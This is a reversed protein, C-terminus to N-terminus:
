RRALADIDRDSARLMKALTKPPRGVTLVVDENGDDGVTYDIGIVRVTTNVALRGENVYLPVADGMNPFGLAYAGPRLGLTYTPTLLGYYAVDGAAKDNLTSQITVDSANASNQWLGVPNVTVNNSDSNWREAYLQAAAPDTSAKNGIVREYNFYDASSVTRTLTAVNAGYVLAVDTRAVGQQPYFVRLYDFQRNPGNPFMDYDFGNIVHALDDIQNLVVSGAQYNRDRLQGSAFRGTGDPACNTHQFPLFSGPTFSTGDTATMQRALLGLNYVLDDQDYQVYAALRTLQRRALMALYDHVTFTVTAAQETIQDESHDLIGRFMPVDRATPEDWRFAVIDTALETLLAAAPDHGDLTFTMQAPANLKQELRRGRAGDLQTIALPLATDFQRRYAMLRWRGRGTPIAAAARPDAVTVTM